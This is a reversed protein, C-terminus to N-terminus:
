ASAAIASVMLSGAAIRLAARFADSISVRPRTMPDTMAATIADLNAVDDTSLRISVFGVKSQPRPM